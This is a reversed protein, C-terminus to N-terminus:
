PQKRSKEKETFKGPDFEFKLEKKGLKADRRGQESGARLTYRLSM